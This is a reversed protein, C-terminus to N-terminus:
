SFQCAHGEQPAVCLSLPVFDPLLSEAHSRTEVGYSRSTPFCHCPSSTCPSDSLRPLELHGLWPSSDDIPYDEKFPSTTSLWLSLIQPSGCGLYFDPTRRSPPHAPGSSTCHATSAMAWQEVQYHSAETPAKGRSQVIWSTMPGSTRLYYQNIV